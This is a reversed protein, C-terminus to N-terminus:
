RKVLLEKVGEGEKLKYLHVLVYALTAISGLCVFLITVSIKLIISKEKYLMWLTIIFINAYFDWLTARMWPISGLFDWQDFLNSELSTAIVKYCMFVLLASFVIKLLNIM